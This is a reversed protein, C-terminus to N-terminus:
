SCYGKLRTSLLWARCEASGGGPRLIVVAGRIHEEQNHMKMRRQKRDKISKKRRKESRFLIMTLAGPASCVAMRGKQESPCFFLPPHCSLSFNTFPLITHWHWGQKRRRLPVNTKRVSVSVDTAEFSFFYIFFYHLHFDSFPRERGASSNQGGTTPELIANGWLM